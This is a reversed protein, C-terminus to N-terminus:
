CKTGCHKTETIKWKVKLVNIKAFNDISNISLAYTM